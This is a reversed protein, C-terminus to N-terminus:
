GSRSTAATFFSVSIREQRRLIRIGFDQQLKPQKPLLLDRAGSPIVAALGTLLSCFTNLSRVNM